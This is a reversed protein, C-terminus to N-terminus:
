GRDGVLNLAAFLSDPQPEAECWAQMCGNGCLPVGWKEKKTKADCIACRQDKRLLQYAAVLKKFCGGVAHEKRASPSAGVIAGCCRCEAIIAGHAANMSWFRYEELGFVGHFQQPVYEEHGLHILRPGLHVGPAYTYSVPAVYKPRKGQRRGRPMFVQEIYWHPVTIKAM